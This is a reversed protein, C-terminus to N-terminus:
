IGLLRIVETKFWEESLAKVIIGQCGIVSHISGNKNAIQEAIEDLHQEEIVKLDFGNGNIENLYEKFLELIQEKDM